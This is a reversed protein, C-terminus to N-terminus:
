TRTIRGGGLRTQDLRKKEADCYRNRRHYLGSADRWGFILSGIWSEPGTYGRRLQRVNLM